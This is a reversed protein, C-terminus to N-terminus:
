KKWKNIQEALSNISSFSEEDMSDINIDIEFEKEIFTILKIIGLSDLIGVDILNVSYDKIERRTDKELFSKIKEKINETDM